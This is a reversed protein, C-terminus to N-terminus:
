WAPRLPGPVAIVGVAQNFLAFHQPSLQGRWHQVVDAAAQDDAAACARGRDTLVLLRDRRDGPDDERRVCGRDVLLDVLQAAAQKTIGIHASLAAATAPGADLLAFAFGHVTLKDVDVM